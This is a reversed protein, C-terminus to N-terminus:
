EKKETAKEETRNVSFWDPNRKRGADEWADVEAPPLKVFREETPLKGESCSILSPYLLCHVYTVVQKSVGDYFKPTKKGAEAIAISRQLNMLFENQRSFVTITQGDVKVKIPESESM